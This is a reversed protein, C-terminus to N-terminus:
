LNKMQDGVMGVVKTPDKTIDQVTGAFQQAAQQTKETVQTAVQEVQPIVNTQIPTTDETSVVSTPNTSDTM